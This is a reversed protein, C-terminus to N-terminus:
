KLQNSSNTQPFEPAISDEDSEIGPSIRRVEIANLDDTGLGLSVAFPFQRPLPDIRPFGELVRMRNM